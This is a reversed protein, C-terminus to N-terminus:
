AEALTTALPMINGTHEHMWEHTLGLRVNNVLYRAYKNASNSWVKVVLASQPLSSRTM